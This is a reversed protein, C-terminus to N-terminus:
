SQVGSATKLSALWQAFAAQFVANLKTQNTPTDAVHYFSPLTPTNLTSIYDEMFAGYGDDEDDYYFASFRQGLESFDQPNLAGGMNNLVFKAGSMQGSKLAALDNAAINEWEPYHLNQSVAWSWYFGMHTAAHDQSLNKPFDEDLHFYIHDYM